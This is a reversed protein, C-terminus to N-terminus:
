TLTVHKVQVPDLYFVNLERILGDEIIFFHGVQTDLLKGTERATARMRMTVAVGTQGEFTRIETLDLSSWCQTFARFFEEVGDVGHWDGPYPVTPGQRAIVDSHFHAGVEGFDARAEFGGASVFRQEAAYFSNLTDPPRALQRHNDHRRDSPLAEGLNVYM